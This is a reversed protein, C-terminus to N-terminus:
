RGVWYKPKQRDHAIAVVEIRDDCQRHIVSYPYRDLVYRRTGAEFSPWVGPKQSIIQLANDLVEIFRRAAPVSRALYWELADEIELRAEPLVEITV